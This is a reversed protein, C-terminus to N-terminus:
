LLLWLGLFFGRQDCPNPIEIKMLRNQLIKKKKLNSGCCESIFLLKRKLSYVNINLSRHQGSILDNLSYEQILERCLKKATRKCMDSEKQLLVCTM